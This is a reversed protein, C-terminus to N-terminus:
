RLVFRFFKNAYLFRCNWHFNVLMAANTSSQVTKKKKKVYVRYRCVSKDLPM